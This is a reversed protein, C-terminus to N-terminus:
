RLICGHLGESRRNVAGFSKQRRGAAEGHESGVVGVSGKEGEEM